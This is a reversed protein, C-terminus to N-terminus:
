RPATTVAGAALLVDIVALADARLRQPAVEFEASLTDALAAVTTPQALLQWIRWGPHSISIPQDAAPGLVVVGDFMRRWLAADDRLYLTDNSDTGPTDGPPDRDTM